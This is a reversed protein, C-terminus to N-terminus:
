VAMVPKSLRMTGLCAAATLLLYGFAEGGEPVSLSVGEFDGQGGGGTGLEIEIPDGATLPTGWFTVTYAAEGGPAPATGTAYYTNGGIVLAAWGNFGSDSRYLIDATLTYPEGSVVTAAVTQSITGSNIWAMTTGFPVVTPLVPEFPGNEVWQGASGALTWDPVSGVNFYLGPQYSDNNTLPTTVTQFSANL